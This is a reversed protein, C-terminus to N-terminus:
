LHTIDLFLYNSPGKPEDFKIKAKDKFDETWRLMEQRTRYVMNWEGLMEFYAKHSCNEASANCILLSGENALLQYLQKVMRIAIRDKLYDFIGSAYILDQCCLEKILEKNRLIDIINKHLYVVSLLEKKDEEIKAMEQRVYDLAKIELDLCYFTVKRHINGEQLLESLERMPGSGVSLIRATEKKGIAEMIKRKVFDKRVINSASFPINCTYNNILKEYSSQGLYKGDHYDYIYNMTVYDGSYGLPKRYIRRNIESPGEILPLISAQYYKQSIRYDDVSFDKALDWIKYFYTDLNKFIGGKETEIFNIRNKDHQNSADFANFKAQISELYQKFDRTIEVFNQNILSQEKGM